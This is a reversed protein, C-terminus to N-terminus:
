LLPDAYHILKDQLPDSGFHVQIFIYQIQATSPSILVCLAQALNFGILLVISLTRVLIEYM